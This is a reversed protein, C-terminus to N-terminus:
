TRSFASYVVQHANDELQTPTDSSSGRAFGDRQMGRAGLDDDDVTRARLDGGVQVLSPNRNM